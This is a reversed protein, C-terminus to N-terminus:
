RGDVTSMLDGSDRSLLMTKAFREALYQGPPKGLTRKFMAIFSSASEYGLSLAVTQVSSGNAMRQLALTVLLQRKWDGWSMGIDHNFLRSMTRESLGFRAAWEIASDKSSPNAIIAEVLRRIRPNRPMPLCLNEWPLLAIEGMIVDLIRSEHSDAPAKEPFGAARLLLERLLPTVSAICCNTPMGVDADVWVSYSQFDGYAYANHLTGGPLWLVMTPPVIWVDSGAECHLAGRVVYILLSRQHLNEPAEWRQGRWILNSTQAAAKVDNQSAMVWEWESQWSTASDRCLNDFGISTTLATVLYILNWVGGRAVPLSIRNAVLRAKASGFFEGLSTIKISDIV